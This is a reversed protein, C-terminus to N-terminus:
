SHSTKYRILLNHKTILMRLMCTTCLYDVIHFNLSKNSM